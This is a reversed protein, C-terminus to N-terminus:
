YLVQSIESELISSDLELKGNFGPEQEVEMDNIDNEEKVVKKNMSVEENEEDESVEVEVLVM